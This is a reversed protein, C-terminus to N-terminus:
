QKALHNFNLHAFEGYHKLAAQDYVKAAEHKDKFRGLFLNRREPTKIQLRVEWKNKEKDWTVGKFGSTNNKPMPRNMNNQSGNCFRLNSKRNDLTNQNIHDVQQGTKAGMIIRHMLTLRKRGEGKTTNRAAYFGGNWTRKSVCWKNMCLKEYDADDVALIPSLVGVTIARLKGHRYCEWKNQDGSKEM